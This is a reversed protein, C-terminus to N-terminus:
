KVRENQVWEDIRKREFQWKGGRNIGPLRGSEAWEVVVSPDITLYKAVEEASLFEKKKWSIVSELWIDKEEGMKCTGCFIAGKEIQLNQTNINGYVKAPSALKLSDRATINGEVMGGITIEDGTIDAKVNADEGIILVGKTNLIGEFRGNIKLNVPDKFTVEGQMSADVDLIKEKLEEKKGRGKTGLM